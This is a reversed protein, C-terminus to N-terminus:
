IMKNELLIGILITVSMNIIILLYYKKQNM